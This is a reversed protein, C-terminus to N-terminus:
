SLSTKIREILENVEVQAKEMVINTDKVGVELARLVARIQRETMDEIDYSRHSNVVVM